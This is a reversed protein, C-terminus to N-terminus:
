HWNHRSGRFRSWLLQFKSAVYLVGCILMVGVTGFIMMTLLDAVEADRELLLRFLLVIFLPARHTGDFQWPVLFLLVGMGTIFAALIIHRRLPYICFGLLAIAFLYFIFWTFFYEMRSDVKLEGSSSTSSYTM